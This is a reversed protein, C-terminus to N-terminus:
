GGNSRHGESIIVRRFTLSVRRQRPIGRDSKRFPIAHTWDYRAEGTMVLASGPWLLLQKKEGTKRSVFEMECQSGLSVTAITSTFCPECDIHASIGQGPLYENVIMQDPMEALLNLEMLRQAVDRAFSPLTGVFMEHDIRRARYDYKYGYHQVRRKLDTLWPQSDVQQLLGRQEDETLVDPAYHLGPIEPVVDGSGTSQNAFLELQNSM